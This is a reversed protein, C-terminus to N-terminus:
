VEYKLLDSISCNLVFCLKALVFADYKIIQNYYYRKIVDYKIDALKSIKYISIHKKIMISKLDCYVFGFETGIANIIIGGKM